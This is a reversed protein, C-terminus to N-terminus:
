AMFPTCLSEFKLKTLMDWVTCFGTPPTLFFKQDTNTHFLSCIFIINIIDELKM